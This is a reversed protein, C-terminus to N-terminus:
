LGSLMLSSHGVLIDMHLSSGLSIEANVISTVDANSINRELQLALYVQKGFLFENM